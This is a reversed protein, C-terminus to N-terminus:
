SFFELIAEINEESYEIESSYLRAYEAIDSLSINGFKGLHYRCLIEITKYSFIIFAARQSLREDELVGSLHRYTFYMLLQEAVTNFYSPLSSNNFDASAKLENLINTWKNDLRELGLLFDAIETKNNEFNLASCLRLFENIRHGISENRNQLIEFLRRRFEILENEEETFYDEIGDDDFVELTVKENQSIILEAAAECCLGLGIETAGDYFNRFRPHDTCIQCLADEGFKLIIDCLNNANLFPCRENDGLKFCAVDDLTVINENLQKGFDGQVSKYKCYTGEDIDIEWGICCSHQCKDAICKFKKYYNPVIIKM